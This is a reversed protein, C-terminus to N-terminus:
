CDQMKKRNKPLFTALVNPLESFDGYRQVRLRSLYGQRRRPQLRRESRVPLEALASVDNKSISVLSVLLVLFYLLYLFFGDNRVSGTLSLKTLGDTFL